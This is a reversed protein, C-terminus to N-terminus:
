GRLPALDLAPGTPLLGLLAAPLPAAQGARYGLAAVDASPVPFKVGADTV